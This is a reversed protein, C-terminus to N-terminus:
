RDWLRNKGILAFTKKTEGKEPKQPIVNVVYGGDDVYDGGCNGGSVFFIKENESVAGAM